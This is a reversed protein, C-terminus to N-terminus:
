QRSMSTFGILGSPMSMALAEGNFGSLPSPQQHHHAQHQQLVPHSHPHGQFHPPLPEPSGITAFSATTAPSGLDSVHTLDSQNTRDHEPLAIQQIIPTISPHVPSDVPLQIQTEAQQVLRNKRPSSSQEGGETKKKRSSQKYLQVGEVVIGHKRIKHQTLMYNFRYDAGCIDCYVRDGTHKMVHYRLQNPRAFAKDCYTCKHKYPNDDHLLMHRRLSKRWRCKLGCINCVFDKKEHISEIHIKLQQKVYFRRDCIPCVIDKQQTHTMMHVNFTASSSLIKGCIQCVQKSLSAPKDDTSKDRKERPKRSGKPPRPENKRPRGRKKKPKEEVFDDDPDYKLAINKRLKAMQEEEPDYEDADDDDTESHSDSSSSAVFDKRIDYDSDSDMECPEEKVDESSHDELKQMALPMHDPNETEESIIFGLEQSKDDTEVAVMLYDTPLESSEEAEKKIVSSVNDADPKRDEEDDEKIMGEKVTFIKILKSQACSCTRIFKIWFKIMHSCADCVGSPLLEYEQSSELCIELLKATDSCKMLKELNNKLPQREVKACLRCYSSENSSGGIEDRVEPKGVAASVVDVSPVVNSRILTPPDVNRDLEDPHFHRECVKPDPIHKCNARFGLAKNWSRILEKNECPFDFFSIGSQGTTSDCNPTLCKQVVKDM